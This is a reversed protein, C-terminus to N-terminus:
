NTFRWRISTSSKELRNVTTITTGIPPAMATSLLRGAGTPLDAQSGACTLPQILNLTPRMLYSIESPTFLGSPVFSRGRGGPGGIGATPGALSRAGAFIIYQDAPITLDYLTELIGTAPNNFNMSWQWTAHGGASGNFPPPTQISSFTDNLIGSFYSAAAELAAKAQLGVANGNPNGAGFFNNADFSYNVVVNIAKAPGTAALMALSLLLLRLSRWNAMM